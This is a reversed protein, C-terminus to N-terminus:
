IMILSAIFHLRTKKKDAQINSKKIKKVECKSLAASFLAIECSLKECIM